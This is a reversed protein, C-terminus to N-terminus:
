KAEKRKLEGLMDALREQCAALEVQAKDRETVVNGMLRLDDRARAEYKDRTEACTNVWQERAREAEEARKRQTDFQRRVADLMAGASANGAVWGRQEAAAVLSRERRTLPKPQSMKCRRGGRTIQREAIAAHDTCYLGAPGHGPRLRCQEYGRIGFMNEGLYCEWACLQRDFPMRRGYHEGYYLDRAEDLTAPPRIM